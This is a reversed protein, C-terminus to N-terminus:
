KVVAVAVPREMNEETESLYYEIRATYARGQKLLYIREHAGNPHEWPVAYGANYIEFNGICYGSEARKCKKVRGQRVWTEGNSPRTGTFKLKQGVFGLYLNEAQVPSVGLLAFLATVSLLKKM